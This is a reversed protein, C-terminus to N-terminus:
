DEFPYKTDPLKAPPKEDAEKGTPEDTPYEVDLKPGPKGPAAKKGAEEVDQHIPMLEIWEIWEDMREEFREEWEEHTMPEPKKWNEIRDKRAREMEQEVERRIEERLERRFEKSLEHFEVQVKEKKRSRDKWNCCKGSKVIIACASILVLSVALAVLGTIFGARGMITDEDRARAARQGILGMVLAAVGMMPSLVLNAGPLFLFALALIGLILSAIQM